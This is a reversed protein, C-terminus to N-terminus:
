TGKVGFAVGPRNIATGPGITSTGAGNPRATAQALIRCAKRRCFAAGAGRMLIRIFVKRGKGTATIEAAIGPAGIPVSFV